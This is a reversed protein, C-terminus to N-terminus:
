RLKLKKIIRIAEGTVISSSLDQPNHETLDIGCKPLGNVCNTFGHLTFMETLIGKLELTEEKCSDMGSGAEALYIAMLNCAHGPASHLGPDNLSSLFRITLQKFITERQQESLPMYPLVLPLAMDSLLVSNSETGKYNGDGAFFADFYNTEIEATIEGYGSLQDVASRAEDVVKLLNYWLANAVANEVTTGSDGTKGGSIDILCTGKLRSGGLNDQMIIEAANEMIPLYRRLCTSTKDRDACRKVAVAFYLPIRRDNYSIQFTSEDITSPFAGNVENSVIDNFYEQEYNQRGTVYSIGGISLLSESAMLGGYPYGNIVAKGRIVRSRALHNSASDALHIYRKPLGSSSRREEIAEICKAEIEAFDFEALDRTSAAFTLGKGPDLETEWFGINFLDERDADYLDADHAYIFDYYWRSEPTTTYIQSLKLYLRPLNMDAIIRVGDPLEDVLFGDGAKRISDRTRFSILPLLRLTIAKKSNNEYHCFVTSSGKPMLIKKTVQCGDLDFTVQPFHDFIFKSLYKYGEPFIAGPYHNTALMYPKGDVIVEEDLKNLLTFRKLPFNTSVTLLSHQRRTNMFSITSCAYGGDGDTLLWEKSTSVTPDKLQKQTYSIM